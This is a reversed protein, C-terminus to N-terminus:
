ITQKLQIIKQKRWAGRKGMPLLLPTYGCHPNYVIVSDSPLKLSGRSEGFTAMRVSTPFFTFDVM